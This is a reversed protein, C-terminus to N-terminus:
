SKFPMVTYQEFSLTGPINMINHMESSIENLITVSFQIDWELGFDTFNKVINDQVVDVFEAAYVYSSFELGIDVVFKSM